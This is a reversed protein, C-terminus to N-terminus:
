GDSLEGDGALQAAAVAAQGYSIAGDNPPLRTARLVRFGRHVLREHVETLLRANQFVGGGLAVVRVGERRAIRSAVDASAEAITTHFGAALEAIGEGRAVREELAHLLPVPDLVWGHGDDAIPFPLMTGAASGAAAELRMAAEGEFTSDRCVGLVAAAADFLRGMSSALPANVRLTAQRAVTDVADPSLGRLAHAFAGALGDDLSRYGLLARWGHRAAADGGPLPAYRLHAARRYSRLDAVLFEAGWVAGDDGLGTGDFAIGIVPTTVGHEAAVAAVHAHHHQVAIAQELGLDAALHTSLYGPHLDHVAVRPEVRFLRQMRDLTRRWHAEMELTELDGIHPSVFADHGSAIALTNKLHAGAAILPVGAPVPLAVPLPALGRARRVHIPVDGAVRVVSDDVPAAIERDHTLFADAVDGLERQADALSTVLPEGSANGSTMVLPRGCADLLLMHLPTYALMVGLTPLPGSVSPAVHADDRRQLVVIPRTASLLWEAERDSVHALTRAAELSRVMVALPKGDRHKRARLRAVAAQDTADAALHFGGIGRVAVIAGGQLARVATALADASDATVGSADHFSLRPGCAPCSNTESHFRREGPAQYERHCAPCQTFAAMTTRERDYPMSAIVSYRPGCDTCTIFPYGARRNGPDYLERECAACTAVDPAVWPALAASDGSALIEFSQLSEWQATFAQLDDIRALPPADARLAEVFRHLAFWDGEAAIEVDGTTNRVWGNIRHRLALRHVFPRFGVGQVVGRVRM